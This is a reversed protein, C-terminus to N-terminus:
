LKCNWSWVTQGNWNQSREVERLVGVAVRGNCARAVWLCRESITRQTTSKQLRVNCKYLSACWVKLLQLKCCTMFHCNNRVAASAPLMEQSATAQYSGWLTWTSFTANGHWRATAVPLRSASSASSVSIEQTVHWWMMCIWWRMLLLM